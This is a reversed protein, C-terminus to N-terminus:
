PKPKPAPHRPQEEAERRKQLAADEAERQKRLREADADRLHDPAPRASSPTAPRSSAPALPANPPFLRRFEAEAVPEQARTALNIRFYKTPVRDRPDESLGYVWQTDPVIALDARWSGNPEVVTDVSPQGPGTFLRIRHGGVSAGNVSVNATALVFNSKYLAALSSLTTEIREGSRNRSALAEIQSQVSQFTDLTPLICRAEYNAIELSGYTRVGSKTVQIPKAAARDLIIRIPLWEDKATSKVDAPRRLNEFRYLVEVNRRAPASSGCAPLLILCALLLLLPLPRMVPPYM